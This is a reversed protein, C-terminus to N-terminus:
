ATTEPATNLSAPRAAWRTARHTEFDPDIERALRDVEAMLSSDVGIIQVARAMGWGFKELLVAALEPTEAGRSVDSMRGDAYSRIETLLQAEIAEQFSRPLLEALDKLNM